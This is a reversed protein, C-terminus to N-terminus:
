QEEEAPLGPLVATGPPVDAYELGTAGSYAPLELDDESVSWGLGVEDADEVYARVAPSEDLAARLRDPDGIARVVYPPSFVQGHLRLVNGVCRFASTSVVREDMLSMAEAGGAWLANMVAQLDQQHVVLVDPSVDGLGPQDAPADDLQVTLGTGAVPTVGGEILYAASPTGIEAGEETSARDALEEVEGRLSDVEDALSDVRDVEQEALGALNQPHREEARDRSVANAAFLAGSLALVVAVSLTGTRSRRKGPAHEEPAREGPARQGPAREEPARDAAGQADASEDSM